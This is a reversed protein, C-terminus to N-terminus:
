GFDVDVTASSWDCSGFNTKLTLRHNGSVPKAVGTKHFSMGSGGSDFEIRCTSGEDVVHVVYDGGGETCGPASWSCGNPTSETLTVGSTNCDSCGTGGTVGAIVVDLTTSSEKRCGGACGCLSITVAVTVSGDGPDADDCCPVQSGGTEGSGEFETTTGNLAGGGSVGGVGDCELTIDVLSGTVVAAVELTSGGCSTYTGVWAGESGFSPDWEMAVDEAELCTCGDDVTITASATTGYDGVCDAESCPCDDCKLVGSANKLLGTSDKWLAM